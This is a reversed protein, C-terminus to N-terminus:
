QFLIYIAFTTWGLSLSLVPLCLSRSLSRALMRVAVATEAHVLIYLHADHWVAIRTEDLM